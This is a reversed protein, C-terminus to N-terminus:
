DKSANSAPEVAAEAPKPEAAAAVPKAPSGKPMRPGKREQFQYGPRGGKARALNQHTVWMNARAHKGDFKAAVEDEGAEARGRLPIRPVLLSANSGPGGASGEHAPMVFLFLGETIRISGDGV